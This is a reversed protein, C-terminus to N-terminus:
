SKQVRVTPWLDGCDCLLLPEWPLENEFAVHALKPFARRALPDAAERKPLRRRHFPSFRGNESPVPSSGAVGTPAGSNWDSAKNTDTRHFVAERNEVLAGHKQNEVALLM